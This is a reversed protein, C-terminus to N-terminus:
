STEQEQTRSSHGNHLSDWGDRQTQLLCRQRAYNEFGPRVFRRLDVCFNKM